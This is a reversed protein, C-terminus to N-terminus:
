PAESRGVAGGDHEAMSPAAPARLQAFEHLGEEIRTVLYGKEVVSSMAHALSRFRGEDMENAAEVRHHPLEFIRARVDHTEHAMRKAGRRHGSPEIGRLALHAGHEDRRRGRELTIRAEERPPETNALRHAPRHLFVELAAMCLSPDLELQGLRDGMHATGRGGLGVIALNVRENAGLIRSNGISLAASTMAFFKRRTSEM